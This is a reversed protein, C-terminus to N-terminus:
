TRRGVGAIGLMGPIRFSLPSPQYGTASRRGCIERKHFTLDEHTPVRAGCDCSFPLFSLEPEYIPVSM